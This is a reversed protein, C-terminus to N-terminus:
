ATRKWMYAALYPPLNNHALGGGASELLDEQPRWQMSEKVEGAFAWGVPSGSAAQAVHVAHTHAPLEAMTLRHESEGGTEGAAYGGGAGLLFRGELREWVGGLLETPNLANLSVYVAGVPYVRDLLAASDLKTQRLGNVMDGLTDLAEQAEAAKQDLASLHGHAASLGTDLGELTETLGKGLDKVSLRGYRRYIDDLIETLRNVFRRGEAGWIEPTQLPEYQHTTNYRAM